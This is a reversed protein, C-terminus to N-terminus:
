NSGLVLLVRSNILKNAWETTKKVGVKRSVTNDISTVGNQHWYWKSAIKEFIKSRQWNIKERTNTIKKITLINDLVVNSILLILIFSANHQSSFATGHSYILGQLKM